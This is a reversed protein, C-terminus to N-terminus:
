PVRLAADVLRVAHAHEDRQPAVLVVEGGILEVRQRDFLGISGMQYYEDRTWRRTSPEVAVM